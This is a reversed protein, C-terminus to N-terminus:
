KQPQPLSEKFAAQRDEHKKVHGTHGTSVSCPDGAPRPLETTKTVLSCVPRKGECGVQLATVTHLLQERLSSRFLAAPAQFKGNVEM